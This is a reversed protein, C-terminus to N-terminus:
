KCFFFLSYIFLTCDIFSCQETDCSVADDKQMNYRSHSCFWASGFYFSFVIAFHLRLNIGSYRDNTSAVRSQARYVWVWHYAGHGGGKLRMCGPATLHYFRFSPQCQIVFLQCIRGLGVMAVHYIYRHLQFKNYTYITCCMTPMACTYLCLM